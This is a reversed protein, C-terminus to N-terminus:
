NEVIMTGAGNETFVEVLLIHAITGNLIHASLVGNEVASLATDIKPIMGGSIVKKKILNNIEAINVKSLLNNKKNLIDDVYTLM